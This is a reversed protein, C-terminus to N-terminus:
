TSELFTIVGSPRNPPMPSPPGKRKSQTKCTDQQPGCMPGTENADSTSSFLSITTKTIGFRQRLSRKSNETFSTDPSFRFPGPIVRITVTHGTHQQAISYATPLGLFIGAALVLFGRKM